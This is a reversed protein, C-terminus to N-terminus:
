RFSHDMGERCSSGDLNTHTPGSDEAMACVDPTEHTKISHNARM